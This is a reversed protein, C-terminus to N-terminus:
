TQLQVYRDQNLFSRSLKERKLYMVVASALLEYTEDDSLIRGAFYLLHATLLYYDLTDMCKLLLVMLLCMKICIM